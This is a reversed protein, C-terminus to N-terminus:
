PRHHRWRWEELVLYLGVILAIIRAAANTFVVMEQVADDVSGDFVMGYTIALGLVIWVVGVATTLFGLLFDRESRHDHFRWARRLVFLGVVGLAIGAGFAVLAQVLVSPPIAITM